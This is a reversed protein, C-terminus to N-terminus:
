GHTELEALRWQLHRNAEDVNVVSLVQWIRDTERLRYTSSAGPFYTCMAQHTTTSQMQAAQERESGSLPMIEFWETGVYEWNEPVDEWDDVNRKKEITLRKNPKM